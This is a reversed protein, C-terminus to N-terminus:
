TGGRSAAPAYMRLEPSFLRPTSSSAAAPICAIAAWARGCSFSIDARSKALSSEVPSVASPAASSRGNTGDHSAPSPNVANEAPSTRIYRLVGPIVSSSPKRGVASPVPRALSTKRRPMPSPSTRSASVELCFYDRARRLSPSSSAAEPEVGEAVEVQAGAGLRDARPLPDALEELPDPEGLLDPEVVRADTLVVPGVVGDGRRGGGDSGREGLGPADVDAGGDGHQGGLVRHADELLEGGHVLEGLAPDLEAGAAAREDLGEREEARVQLVVVVEELLLELQQQPEVGLVRDRPRAAEPGRQPV